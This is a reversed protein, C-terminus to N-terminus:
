GKWASAPDKKTSHAAFGTPTLQEREIVGQCSASSRSMAQIYARERTREIVPSSTIALKMRSPMTVKTMPQEAHHNM